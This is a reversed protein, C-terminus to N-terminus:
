RCKKSKKQKKAKPTLPSEEYSSRKSRHRNKEIRDEMVAEQVGDSVYEVWHLSSDKKKLAIAQVSEAGRKVTVISENQKVFSDWAASIEDATAFEAPGSDAIAKAKTTEVAVRAAKVLSLQDRRQQLKTAIIYERKGNCDVNAMMSKLEANESTLASLAQINEEFASQLRNTSHRLDSNIKELTSYKINVSAFNISLQESISALIENEEKKAAIDNSLKFLTRRAHSLESMMKENTNEVELLLKKTKDNEKRQHSHQEIENCLMANLEDNRKRQEQLAANLRRNKQQESTLLLENSKKQLKASAANIHLHETESTPSERDFTVATFNTIGKTCDFSKSSNSLASQDMTVMNSTDSSLQM